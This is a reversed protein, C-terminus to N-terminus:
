SPLKRAELIIKKQMKRVQRRGYANIKTQHKEFKKLPADWDDRPGSDNYFHGSFAQCSSDSPIAIEDDESLFYGFPAKNFVLMKEELLISFGQGRMASSSNIHVQKVNFIEISPRTRVIFKVTEANNLHIKLM